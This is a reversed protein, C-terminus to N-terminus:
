KDKREHWDKIAAFLCKGARGSIAQPRGSLTFELLGPRSFVYHSIKQIDYFYSQSGEEFSICSPEKESIQFHPEWIVKSAPKKKTPAPKTQESDTKDNQIPINENM